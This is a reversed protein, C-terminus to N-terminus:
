PAPTPAPLTRPQGDPALLYFLAVAERDTRNAPRHAVGPSEGWCEGPSLTVPPGDRVEMTLTGQLTCFSGPGPHTHWAGAYHPPYVERDVTARLM